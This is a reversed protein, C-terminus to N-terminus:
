LCPKQWPVRHIKRCNLGPGHGKMKRLLEQIVERDEDSPVLNTLIKEFGASVAAAEQETLQSMFTKDAQARSILKFADLMLAERRACNRNFKSAEQCNKAYTASKEDFQDIMTHFSKLGNHKM